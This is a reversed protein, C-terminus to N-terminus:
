PSTPPWGPGARCKRPAPSAGCTRRRCRSARWRASAATFTGPGCSTATSGEYRLRVSDDLLLTLEPTEGFTSPGDAHHDRSFSFTVAPLPGAPVTDRLIVLVDFMFQYRPGGAPRTFVDAGVTTCGDLEDYSRSLHNRQPPQASLSSSALFAAALAVLYPRM